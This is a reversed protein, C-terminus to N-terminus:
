TCSKIFDNRATKWIFCSTNGLESININMNHIQHSAECRSISPITPPSTGPITPPSTGPISLPSTGPISPPSTGPISPPPTGPISPPSTGPISPPYLSYFQTSSQSQPHVRILHFVIESLIARKILTSALSPRFFLIEIINLLFLLKIAIGLFYIFWSNLILAKNNTM